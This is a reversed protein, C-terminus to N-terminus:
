YINKGQFENKGNDFPRWILICYKLPFSYQLFNQGSNLSISKEKRPRLENKQCPLSCLNLLEFADKM